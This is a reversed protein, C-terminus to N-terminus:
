AAASGSLIRVERQPFAIEIRHVRCAEVVAKYLERTADGYEPVPVWPKISISISSDKLATIGLVPEPNKLVRPNEALLERLVALVKNLDTSYSVGVELNLQRLKGYNHMIEGVLKRNPVVIRSRDPHSLTTSLLEISEVQGEVGIMAVWEGVRFPKSFLITLGAVLNGLVGQAALGLGVGVVGLGGFLPLLDVGLNQLAMMLALLFVAAGLIRVLLLRVPPEVELRTFFRLSFHSVRRAAFLGLIAIGAAAALRPGYRVSADILAQKTYEVDLNATALSFFSM